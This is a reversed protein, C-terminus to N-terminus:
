KNNRKKYIKKAENLASYGQEEDEILNYIRNALWLTELDELNVDLLDSLKPLHNRNLRKEGKEVKSIFAGDVEIAAGIQRQALGNQERLEKLKEGFTMHVKKISTWNHDFITNQRYVILFRIQTILKPIV